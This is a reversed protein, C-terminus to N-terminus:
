GGAAGGKSKEAARALATTGMGGGARARTSSGKGERVFARGRQGSAAVDRVPGAMLDGGNRHGWGRWVRAHGGIFGQVGCGCVRAVGDAVISRRQRWISLVSSPPLLAPLPPAQLGLLLLPLPLPPVRRRRWASSPLIWPLALAARALAGGDSLLMAPGAGRVDVVAYRRPVAGRRGRRHRRVVAGLGADELGVPSGATRREGAERKSGHAASSGVQLM